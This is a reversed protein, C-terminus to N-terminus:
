SVPGAGTPRYRPCLWPLGETQVAEHVPHSVWYTVQQLATLTARVDSVHKTSM